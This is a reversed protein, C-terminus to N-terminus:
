RGLGPIKGLLTGGLPAAALGAIGGIASGLANVNANRAAMQQGYVDQAAQAQAQAGQFVPAAAVNAGTYQQFQPNQIQSSSML